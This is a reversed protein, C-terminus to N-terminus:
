TVVREETPDSVSDIVSVLSERPQEQLNAFDSRQMLEFYWLGMILFCVRRERWLM